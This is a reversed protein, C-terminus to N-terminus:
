GRWHPCLGQSPCVPCRSFGPAGAHQRVNLMMESALHRVLERADYDSPSMCGALENAIAECHADASVRKLPVFSVGPDHRHQNWPLDINLITCVDMREFYSFARNTDHNLFRWPRGLSELRKVTAVVAAIAAPIYYKVRAFDFEVGDPLAQLLALSTAFDPLDKEFVFAQLVIRRM